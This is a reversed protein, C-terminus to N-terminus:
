IASPEIRGLGGRQGRLVEGAVIIALKVELISHGLREAEVVAPQLGGVIV